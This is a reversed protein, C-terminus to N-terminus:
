QVDANLAKNPPAPVAKAFRSQFLCLLGCLGFGIGIWLGARNNKSWAESISEFTRYPEGDIDISWFVCKSEAIDEVCSEELLVRLRAGIPVADHIRVVGWGKSPLYVVKETSNLAFSVNSPSGKVYPGLARSTVVGTVPALELEDPIGMRDFYWVSFGLVSFLLCAVALFILQRPSSSDSGWLLARFLLSRETSTQSM